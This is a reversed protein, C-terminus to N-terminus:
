FCTIIVQFHRSLQLRNNQNEVSFLRAAVTAAVSGGGVGRGEWCSRTSETGSPPSRLHDSANVTLAVASQERDPSYTVKFMKIFKQQKITPPPTNKQLQRAQNVTARKMIARWQGTGQTSCFVVNKHTWKLTIKIVKELQSMEKLIRYATDAIQFDSTSSTILHLLLLHLQEM